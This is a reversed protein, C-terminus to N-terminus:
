DEDKDDEDSSKDLNIPTGNKLKKSVVNYPGTIIEEGGELGSKIQIMRDDQIGTEVVVLKAKSGNKLFVVEYEGDEEEAKTEDDESKKRRMKYTKARSSTDTRITVAQIPVSIVDELRETNIDVTATMGPRFAIKGSETLDEYSSSLIRVKVEFNTVQDASASM